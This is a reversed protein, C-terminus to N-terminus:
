SFCFSFVYFGGSANGFASQSDIETVVMGLTLVTRTEAALHTPRFIRYQTLRPPMHLQPQIWQLPLNTLVLPLLLGCAM